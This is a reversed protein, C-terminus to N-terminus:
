RPRMAALPSSTLDYSNRGYPSETDGDGDLDFEGLPSVHVAPSIVPSHTVRPRSKFVSAYDADDEFLEDRPASRGSQANNSHSSQKRPTELQNVPFSPRSKRSQPNGPPRKSPPVLSMSKRTREALNFTSSPEQEQEQKPEPEPEPQPDPECSIHVAPSARRSADPEPTPSVQPVPEESPSRKQGQISSPPTNAQERTGSSGAVANGLARPSDLSASPSSKGSARALAENMSSLLLQDDERLPTSCEPQRVAKSISAVTLTQHDKFALPSHNAASISVRNSSKQREWKSFDRWRRLRDRQRSVRSELDVLLDQNTDASPEGIASANAMSWASSFPLEMFADSSNGAGGHLLTNAWEESGRWNAKVECSLRDFDAPEESISAPNEKSYSDLQTEKSDLLSSFKEHTTRVRARRDGMAGLSVRHALILPAMLQYEEPRLSRATSLKIAPNSFADNASTVVKRLVATSFVALMEDVKEGSCDNM